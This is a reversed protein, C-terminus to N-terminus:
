YYPIPNYLYSYDVEKIKTIFLLICIGTIALMIPESPLDTGLGNPLYIEVSFPITLLFLIYLVRYDWIIFGLGVCLFPILFFLVQEFFIGACFFISAIGIAYAFVQKANLSYISQLLNNM